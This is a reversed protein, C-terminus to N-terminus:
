IEIKFSLQLLNLSCEDDQTSTLFISFLNKKKHHSGKPNVKKVVKM